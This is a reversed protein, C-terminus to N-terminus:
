NDRFFKEDEIRKKKAREKHKDDKKLAIRYLLLFIILIIILNKPKSIKLIILGIYPIKFIVKGKIESFDVEEVDEINNNDGKTIYKKNGYQEKIEKVRHTIYEGKKEFTIIDDEQIDDTSNKNIIIIDGVNINPEMSESVIIFTEYNFTKISRTNIYVWVLLILILVYILVKFVKYFLKTVQEKNLKLQKINDLKM